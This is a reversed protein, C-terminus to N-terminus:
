DLISSVALRLRDGDSALTLQARNVEPFFSFVVVL